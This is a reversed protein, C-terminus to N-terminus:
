KKASQGANKCWEDLAFVAINKLTMTPFGLSQVARRMRAALKADRFSITAPIKKSKPRGM